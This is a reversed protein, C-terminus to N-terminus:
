AGVGLAICLSPPQGASEVFPCQFPEERGHFGGQLLCFVGFLLPAKAREGVRRAADAFSCEGAHQCAESRALEV